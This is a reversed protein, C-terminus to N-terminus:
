DRAPPAGLWAAIVQSRREFGTKTLVAHVHDKVTGLSIFLADGIQRNSYGSAILQAVEQERKSLSAFVAARRPESYVLPPDNSLDITLDRTQSDVLDVIETLPLDQQM